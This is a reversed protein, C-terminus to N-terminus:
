ERFGEYLAEFTEAGLIQIDFKGGDGLSYVRDERLTDASLEASVSDSEPYSIREINRTRIDRLNRGIQDDVDATRSDRTEAFGVVKNDRIILHDIENPQPDNEFKIEAQSIVRYEDGLEDELWVEGYVEALDDADKTEYNNRYRNFRDYTRAARRFVADDGELALQRVAIANLDDLYASPNESEVVSNAFLNVQEDSLSVLLRNLEEGSLDSSEAVSRLLQTGVCDSATGLAVSSPDTVSWYRDTNVPQYGVSAISCQPTLLDDLRDSDVAGAVRAGDDGTDEVFATLRQRDSADLEVYKPTLAVRAQTSIDLTTLDELADSDLRRVASATDSGGRAVARALRRQQLDSLEGLDADADRTTRWLRYVQGVNSAEGLYSGPVDDASRVITTAVRTKAADGLDDVKTLVSGVRTSRISDSIRQVTRTSKIAKAASAGVLAKAVFGMAYGAYWSARFEDYLAAGQDYPNNREMTSQFSDIAANVIREILQASLDNVLALLQQITDVFFLPDDLVQQILDIVNTAVAGLSASFGSLSGLNSAIASTFITDSGLRGALNGFFNARELGVTEKLNGHVDEATVTVTTGTFSDLITEDTGTGVPGVGVTESGVISRPCTRPSGSETRSTTGRL